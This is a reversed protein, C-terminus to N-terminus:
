VDVWSGEFGTHDGAVFGAKIEFASIADAGFVKNDGLLIGVGLEAIEEMEVRHGKEGVITLQNVEIDHSGLLYLPDVVIVLEHTASKSGEDRGLLSFPELLFSM